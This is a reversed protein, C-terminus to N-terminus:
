EDSPEDAEERAAESERQMDAIGPSCLALHQRDKPDVYVYVTRGQAYLPLDVYEVHEEVEADYAGDPAEVRLSLNLNPKLNVLGFQSCFVVKARM